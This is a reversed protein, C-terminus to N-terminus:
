NQGAPATPTTQAPATQTEVLRREDDTLDSKKKEWTRTGFPTAQEFRVSDGQDFAKASLSPSDPSSGAEPARSVGFPTNIYLWKKGAKDTYSFGGNGNPVAEKPITLPQYTPKPAPKVAAKTTAAATSKKKAPPQAPTTAQPDTAALTLAAAALFIVFTKM